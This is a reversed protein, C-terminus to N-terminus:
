VSRVPTTDLHVANLHGEPIRVEIGGMFRGTDLSPVGIISVLV